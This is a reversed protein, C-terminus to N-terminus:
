SMCTPIEIQCTANCGDGPTTNGDDCQEAVPSSSVTATVMGTNGVADMYTFDFSGNGTFFYGTAGGNNTM